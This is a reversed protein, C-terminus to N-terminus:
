DGPQFVCDVTGSVTKVYMVIFSKVSSTPFSIALAGAPSYAADTGSADTAYIFQTGDKLWIAFNRCDASSNTIATWTSSNVETVVPSKIAAAASITIICLSIILGMLLKRM